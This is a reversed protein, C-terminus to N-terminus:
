DMFGLERAKACVIEYVQDACKWPDKYIESGTFRVVIYGQKTLERDRAKDRAAQEKTKEHYDHGDCEVAIRIIIEGDIFISLGIDIRYPDANEQPLISFEVKHNIGFKRAIDRTSHAITVFLMQEIPSECRELYSMIKDKHKEGAQWLVYQVKDPLEKLYNM